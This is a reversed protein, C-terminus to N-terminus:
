LLCCVQCVEFVTVTRVSPESAESAEDHESIMDFGAALLVGPCAGASLLASRIGGARLDDLSAHEDPSRSGLILFKEVADPGAPRDLRAVLREIEAQSADRTM